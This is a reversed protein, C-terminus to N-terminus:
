KAEQKLAADFEDLVDNVQDNTMGNEALAGRQNLVTDRFEALRERERALERKAVIITDHQDERVKRVYAVCADPDNAYESGGPTLSCLAIHARALEAQCATLETELDVIIREAAALIPKRVAYAPSQQMQDLANLTDAYKSLTDSM